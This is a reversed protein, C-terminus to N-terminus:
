SPMPGHDSWGKLYARQLDDALKDQLVVEEVQITKGMRKSAKGDEAGTKYAEQLERVYNEASMTELVENTTVTREMM